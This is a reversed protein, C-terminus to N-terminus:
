RSTLLWLARSEHDVINDLRTVSEVQTTRQSPAGEAPPLLEVVPHKVGTLPGTPATDASKLGLLVTAGAPLEDRSTWELVLVGARDSRRSTGYLPQGAGDTASAVSIDKIVAADVTVRVRYRAPVAAPGVATGSASRPCYYVFDTGWTKPEWLVGAAAGWPTEQPQKKDYRTLSRTGAQARGRGDARVRTSLPSRVVDYPFSRRKLQGLVVTVSDGAPVAAHLTAVVTNLGTFTDVTVDGMSVPVETSRTGAVATPLVDYLRPDFSISVTTGVDLIAEALLTVGLDVPATIREQAGPRLVEVEGAETPSTVLAQSTAASVARPPWAPATVTVAVLAASWQLISRRSVVREPTSTV